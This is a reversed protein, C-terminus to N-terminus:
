FRKSTCDKIQYQEEFSVCNLHQNRNILLPIFLVIFDKQTMDKHYLTTRIFRIKQFFQCPYRYRMSSPRYPYIASLNASSAKGPLQKKDPDAEVILM